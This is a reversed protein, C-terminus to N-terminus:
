RVGAHDNPRRAVHTRFLGAPHGNVEARILERKAEHKILERGAFLREGFCSRYLREGRNHTVVWRGNACLYGPRQTPYDVSAQCFFGAFAIFRRPVKISIKSRQPVM